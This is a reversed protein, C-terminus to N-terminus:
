RRAYARHRMALVVRACGATASAPRTRLCSWVGGRGAGGRVGGEEGHPWGRQVIPAPQRVRGGWWRGSCGCGGRWRRWPPWGAAVTSGRLRLLSCARGARACSSDCRSSCACPSRAARSASPRLRRGAPGRHVRQQAGVGVVVVRRTPPHTHSTYRTCAREFAIRGCRDHRRRHNTTTSTAAAACQPLAHGHDAYPMLEGLNENLKSGGHFM